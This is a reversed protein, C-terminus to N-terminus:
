PSSTLSPTILSESPLFRCTSSLNFQAADFLYFLLNAFFPNPIPQVRHEGVAAVAQPLQALIGAEGGYGDQRQGEADTRVCRQEAHNIRNKQPRQWKVIRPPEDRDM